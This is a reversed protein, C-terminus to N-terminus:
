RQLSNRTGSIDRMVFRRLKDRVPDKLEAFHLELGPGRQKRFLERLMDASTM